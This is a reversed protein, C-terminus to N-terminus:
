GKEDLPFMYTAEIPVDEVNEYRQHIKVEAVFDSIVAEVIVGTLPVPFQKQLPKLAPECEPCGWFFGGICM